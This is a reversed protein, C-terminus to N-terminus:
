DESSFRNHRPLWDADERVFFTIPAVSTPIVRKKNNTSLINKEVSSVKSADLLEHDVHIAPHPSLRGWGIM